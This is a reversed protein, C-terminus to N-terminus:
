LVISNNVVELGPELTALSETFYSLCVSNMQTFDAAIFLHHCLYSAAASCCCSAVCCVGFYTWRQLVFM